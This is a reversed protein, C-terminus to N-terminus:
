IRFPFDNNRQQGCGLRSATRPGGGKSIHDVCDEIYAPSTDSPAHQRLVKRSVLRGIASSEFKSCLRCTPDHECPEARGFGGSSPRSALGLAAMMSLWLALVVSFPGWLTRHPCSRGLAYAAYRRRCAPFSGSSRPADRLCEPDLRPWAPKPSAPQSNEEGASFRPRRHERPSTPPNPSLGHANSEPSRSSFLCHRQSRLETGDSSPRFFRQM